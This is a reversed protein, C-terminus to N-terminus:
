ALYAGFEPYICFAFIFTCADMLSHLRVGNIYVFITGSGFFEGWRSPAIKVTLAVCGKIKRFFDAVPLKELPPFSKACGIQKDMRSSICAAFRTKNTTDIM